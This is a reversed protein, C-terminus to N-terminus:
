NENIWRKVENLVDMTIQHGNPHEYIHPHAKSQSLNSVLIKLEETSLYPDKPSTAIFIKTESLNPYIVKPEILAPSLLIFKLPYSLPHKLLSQAINAGNSFGIIYIDKENLEYSRISDDIFQKLIITEKNLSELDYQGMGFRKFYRNMGNESVNGRIGLIAATSDIFKAIPILDNEDGGTGHLLIFLKNGTGKEFRHIM